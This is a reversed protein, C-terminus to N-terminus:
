IYSSFCKSGILNHNTYEPDIFTNNFIKTLALLISMKNYFFM